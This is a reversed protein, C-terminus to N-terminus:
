YEGYSKYEVIASDSLKNIKRKVEARLDNFYYVSRSLDIFTDDFRQEKECLRKGDEIDWCQQNIAKLVNRMREIIPSFGMKTYEISYIKNLCDLEHSASEIGHEVKIELITIKDILEGYSTPIDIM